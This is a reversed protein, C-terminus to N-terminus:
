PQKRYREFYPQPKAPPHGRREARTTKIGLENLWTRVNVFSRGEDDCQNDLLMVMRWQLSSMFFLQTM